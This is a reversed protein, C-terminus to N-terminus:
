LLLKRLCKTTLLNESEITFPWYGSALLAGTRFCRLFPSAAEDEDESEEENSSPCTPVLKKKTCMFYANIAAKMGLLLPDPSPLLGNDLSGVGSGELFVKMDVKLVVKDCFPNMTPVDVVGAARLADRLEVLSDLEARMGKNDLKELFDNMPEILWNSDLIEALAKICDGLFTTAKEIEDPFAERHYKHTFINNSSLALTATKANDVLVLVDYRQGQEWNQCFSADCLPIITCVGKTLTDYFKQHPNNMMLMNEARKELGQFKQGNEAHGGWLLKKWLQWVDSRPIENAGELGVAIMGLPGYFWRCTPGKAISHGKDCSLNGLISYNTKNLCKVDTM